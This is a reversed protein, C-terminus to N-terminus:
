TTPLDTKPFAEKYTALDRVLLKTGIRRIVNRWEAETKRLAEDGSITGVFADALNKDLVDTFELYGPLLFSPCTIELCRKTATLGEPTYKAAVRPDSMSEPAWPDTFQLKPDAVIETSHEPTSWYQCLWYAAEPNQGRRNIILAIVPESVTRKVLRGTMRSGPVVGYTWKGRTKSDPRQSVGFAGTWYTWMAAGGRVVFPINQTTGWVAIDKTSYAKTALYHGIASRGADNYLTPTMDDAFPFGGNAYFQMLFWIPGGWNRSRLDSVGYIEPPRTFFKAVDLYDDWTEPWVLPKGHQDAFRKREDPNEFLDKRIGTAMVNGDTVFGYNEGRYHTQLSLPGVSRYTMGGQEMLKDLPEVYGANVLTPIMAAAVHVIDFGSSKAVAEAMVRAPIAPTAIDQVAGVGVGTKEKFEAALERMKGSYYQGWMLVNLDVSKHLAKAGNIAREAVTGGPVQAGWARTGLVPVTALAAAGSARLFMRRSVIGHEQRSQSM